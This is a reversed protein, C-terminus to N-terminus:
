DYKAYKQLIEELCLAYQICAPHLITYDEKPPAYHFIELWESMCLYQEFCAEYDYRIQPSYLLTIRCNCLFFGYNNLQFESTYLM